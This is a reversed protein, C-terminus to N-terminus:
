RIKLLNLKCTVPVSIKVLPNEEQTEFYFRLGANLTLLKSAPKYQVSPHIVFSVNEENLFGDARFDLAASYESAFDYEVCVREMFPRADNEYYKEASKGLYANSLACIFDNSFKLGLSKIKYKASCILSHKAENVLFDEDTNNYSYGFNLILNPDIDIGAFVAYKGFAADLVDQATFGLSFMEPFVFDAAFDLKLNETSDFVDDEIGASLKLLFITEESDSLFPIESYLGAGNKLMRGFKPVDDSAALYAAEIPFKSFFSNGALFSLQPIFKYRFYGKFNTNLEQESSSTNYTFYEELRLRTELKDWEFDLQTRNAFLMGSTAFFQNENRELVLADSSKIKEQDGGFTNTLTIKQAFVGAGLFLLVALLSFSKKNM